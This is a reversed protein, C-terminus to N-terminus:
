ADGQLAIENLNEQRSKEILFYTFAESIRPSRPVIALSAGRM